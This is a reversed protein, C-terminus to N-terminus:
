INECKKLSIDLLSSPINKKNEVEKTYCNKM